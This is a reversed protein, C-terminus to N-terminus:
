VWKYNIYVGNRKKAPLKGTGYYDGENVEFWVSDEVLDLLTHGVSCNVNIYYKGKNLPLKDIYCDFIHQTKSLTYTKGICDSRCAFLFSGSEHFISATLSINKYLKELKNELIFKVYFPAGTEGMSPLLSNDMNCLVNLIRVENGLKNVRRVDNLDKRNLQIQNSAYYHDIASKSDSNFVIIGNEIVLTRSCLNKIATMDHSVFLVTRGGQSSIDQMKGIAKKQFEADGVALVEDVV